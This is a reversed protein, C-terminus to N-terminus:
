AMLDRAREAADQLGISGPSTIVLARRGTM